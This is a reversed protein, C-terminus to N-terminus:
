ANQDAQRELLKQIIATVAKRRQEPDTSRLTHLPKCKIKM